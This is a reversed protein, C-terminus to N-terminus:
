PPVEMTVRMAPNPIRMLMWECRLSTADQFDRLYAKGTEQGQQQQCGAGVLGRQGDFVDRGGRGGDAGEPRTGVHLLEYIFHHLLVAELAAPHLM